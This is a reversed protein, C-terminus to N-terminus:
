DVRVTKIRATHGRVITVRSPAVGLHEALVREVAANAKGDAAPERVMVVLMGGPGEEVAPGRRSGPKVHVRM